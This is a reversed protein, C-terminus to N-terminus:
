RTKGGLGSTNGYDDADHSSLNTSSGIQYISDSFQDDLNMEDENDNTM